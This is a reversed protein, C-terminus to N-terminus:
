KKTCFISNFLLKFTGHTQARKAVGIGLLVADGKGQAVHIIASRGAIKEEGILQGSYLVDHEPYAGVVHYREAKQNDTIAFAPCDWHMALVHEPMGWNIESKPCLDLRLTSGHTLFQSSPLGALVDRVGLNLAEIALDCSGGFTILRGGEEVFSKLAKLGEDGMGGMYEEPMSGLWRQMMRAAGDNAARKLDVMMPMRDAPIIIADFRENLNGAKIDENMITTYPIDFNELVLRTWGEEMNGGYYRQYMGLRIPLLEVLQDAALAKSLPMVCIGLETAWPELKEKADPAVVFSGAAFSGKGEPCCLAEKIRSVAVGASLLKSALRYSDNLTSCWIYGQAEAECTKIGGHLAPAESIISLSGQLPKSARVVKIGMFESLTDTASDFVTPEGKLNTTWYNNPYKTREFLTMIAPRKPQATSVVISGKACLKGDVVMDEDAVHVDFGQRLLVEVFKHATLEDHQTTPLVFAYPAESQGKVVQRKAKMVSNRLITDRHRAAADLIAWASIKQQEVIDRLRWWGGPWPNVFNTQQAYAPFSKDGVGELQDKPIFLPTALRASASETLMGVINHHNAFWHYGMHGWGPFQGGTLIGKKGGEDLRMAMHSGYMMLETWILPDPNPHPPNSYPAVYLRAGNSGMHHHDQYVQPRWDQFMIKGMYRSEVLNQAMADRNNDHGSFKHYLWPMTCGEFETGVWRHYWDAVMHQGDPNFCPVMLFIVNELIRKTEDNDCSLLDYALEPAMQTGGIENAHLSMSQVVVVKGKAVLQDIAEESLGRPDGIKLSRQRINELDALNAASSITVLLFPHGETSPGMDTVQICDSENNLVEFYEVIKDWREMTRDAGLQHGFFSLPSTITSM